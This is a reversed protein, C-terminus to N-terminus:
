SGVALDTNRDFQSAGPSNLLRANCQLDISVRALTPDEEDFEYILDIDVVRDQLSAQLGVGPIPL